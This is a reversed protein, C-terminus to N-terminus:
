NWVEWQGAPELVLKAAEVSSRDDDKLSIEISIDKDFKLLLKESEIEEANTVKKGIQQCVLDCYIDVNRTFRNNQCNITPFLFIDLASGEFDLLMSDITFSVATLKKGQLLRILSNAKYTMSM